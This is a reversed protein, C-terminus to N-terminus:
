PPFLGTLTNRGTVRSKRRPTRFEHSAITVFRSKLEGLDKEKQLTKLLEEKSKQLKNLALQLEGTRQEVKEELEDNLRRIENEDEKRLTTDSIFAIIYQQDHNSYHGLSVEVPFETGDKRLAFLDLGVGMPRDQPHTVYKERHGVHKKHFRGPILLEVKRGILEEGLYGFQKQAFPNALLIKGKSDAVIISMSAYNFLAEMLNTKNIEPFSM